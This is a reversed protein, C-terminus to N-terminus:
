VATNNFPDTNNRRQETDFVLDFSLSDGQIENGVEYPIELLLYFVYPEGDVGGVAVPVGQDDRVIYGGNATDLIANAERATTHHQDSDVVGGTDPQAYQLGLLDSANNFVPDLNTLDTRTGGASGDVPGAYDQWVTSLLFQGLDASNNTDGEAAQEPEPNAGGAEAFEETSVQVYGPNDLVDIECCVIGWDGPKADDVVLGVAADQGDATTSAGLEFSTQNAWYDNAAVVTATVSMDLTGATISNNELEETDSFFASTGLGAGASALGVAGLGALMKRRSLDYLRPEDDTM